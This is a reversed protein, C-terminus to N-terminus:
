DSERLQAFGFIDEEDSLVVELPGLSLEPSTGVGIVQLEPLKQM